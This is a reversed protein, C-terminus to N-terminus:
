DGPPGTARPEYQRPTTYHELRSVLSSSAIQQVVYFATISAIIAGGGFVAGVMVAVSLNKMSSTYFVTVCERESHGRRALGYTLVASLALSAGALAGVIALQLLDISLTSGGVGVYTIAGILAVSGQDLQANSLGGNPTLYALIGAGLIIAALEIVLEAASIDVASGAFFTLLAPMVVPALTMSILVIITALLANGGSLRTWIISSGASLPAALIILVGLLLDGSLVSTAVPYLALPVLLYLCMISAIVPSSINQSKVESLDIGYFAVFMMGLVMVPVLPQLPDALSPYVVGALTAVIVVILSSQSRLTSRLDRM